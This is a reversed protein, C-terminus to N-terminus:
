RPRNRRREAAALLRDHSQGARPQGVKGAQGILNLLPESEVAESRFLLTLAHRVLSGKSERRKRALLELQRDQEEPLLIQVRTMPTYGQACWVCDIAARWPQQMAGDQPRENNEFRRMPWM